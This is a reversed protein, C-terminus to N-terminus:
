EYDREKEKLNEAKKELAQERKAVKEEMHNVEAEKKEVEVLRNKLSSEFAKRKEDLEVKFEQKKVDLIANHEDLLKQMEIKREYEAKRGM